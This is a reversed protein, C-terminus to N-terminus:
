QTEKNSKTKLTVQHVVPLHVEPSPTTSSNTSSTTQTDVNSSTTTTTSTATSDEAADTVAKSSTVSSPTSNPKPVSTGASFYTTIAGKSGQPKVLPQICAVTKDSSNVEPGVKHWTLGVQAQLLPLLRKYVDKVPLEEDGDCNLWADIAAEDPLIVPIRDHLWQFEEPAETTVVVYSCDRTDEESDDKDDNEEDSKESHDEEHEEFTESPDQNESEEKDFITSVKTTTAKIESVDDWLGAMAVIQNNPWHIFYPQGRGSDDHKWEFFGESIVVCRKTRLMRKWMSTALTEARANITCCGRLAPTTEGIFRPRIGWRMAKVMRRPGGSSSPATSATATAAASASARAPPSVDAAATGTTTATAPCSVVVPQYDTPRVNYSRTYRRTGVFGRSATRAVIDAPALACVTRGCM